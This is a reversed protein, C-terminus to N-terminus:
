YANPLFLLSKVLNESVLDHAAYLTFCSRQCGPFHQKVSYGAISPTFHRQSLPQIESEGKRIVHRYKAGWLGSQDTQISSLVIYVMFHAKTWLARSHSENMQMHLNDPVSHSIVKPKKFLLVETHWLLSIFFLRVMWGVARSSCGQGFCILMFYSNITSSKRLISSKYCIMQAPTCVLKRVTFMTLTLCAKICLCHSWTPALLYM